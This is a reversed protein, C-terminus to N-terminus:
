PRAGYGPGLKPPKKPRPLDSGPGQGYQSRRVGKEGLSRWGDGETWLEDPILRAADHLAQRLTRKPGLALIHELTHDIEANIAAPRVPAYFRAESLTGVGRRRLQAKRVADRLLCAAAQRISLAAAARQESVYSELGPPPKAPVVTGALISCAERQWEWPQRLTLKAACEFAGLRQPLRKSAM